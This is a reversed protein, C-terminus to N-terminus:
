RTEALYEDYAAPNASFLEVIAAAESIDAKSIAQGALAEVQGMVSSEQPGGASGIENFIQEGAASFLRDLYELHERPMTDAASKLIVAIEAPDGPLGYGKAIETYEELEREDQLNKAITWAAEADQRAALTENRAEQMAKSIVEDRADTSAAKSLEEYVSEGLSKHVAYGTGAAATGGLAIRGSRTNASTATANRWSGVPGKAKMAGDRMAGRANRSAARGLDKYQEKGMGAKRTSGAAAKAPKVFGEWDFKGVEETAEDAAEFYDEPEAGEECAVLEEGSEADYVVDGPELEAADVVYGEADMLVTMSTGEDRKAIAVDAHQNASRDVLSIEDFDLDFLRKVTRSAM